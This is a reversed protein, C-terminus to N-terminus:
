GHSHTSYYRYFGKKVVQAIFWGNIGEAFHPPKMGLLLFRLFVALGLIAWPIWDKGAFADQWHALYRRVGAFAPSSEAPASKDASSTRAARRMRTVPRQRNM